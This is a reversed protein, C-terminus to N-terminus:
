INIKKRIKKFFKQSNLNAIYSGKELIKYLKSENKRYFFYLKQIRILFKKLIESVSEKFQQYTYNKFKKELVSISNKSLLSAIILLNSIGPKISPNYFIQPPTDSDTVSNKIKLLAVEISDSLFIVNNVNKNTKSMKLLPNQLGMIKKGLNPIFIKPIVFIKGYIKNFRKAIKQTFELHQKQDEGVLVLNTQYLLIDSAMLVPYNLLGLNVNKPQLLLKSKFQTMRSLEGFSSMCGLIWYLQTHLVVDSQVFIISKEPNIGCALYWSLTDLISNKLFNIKKTLCNTLVHLDAICFYCKSFNQFNRWYQMTGLYNGLTLMGSPQIGTFIVNKFSNQM